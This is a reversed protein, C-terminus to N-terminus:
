EGHKNDASKEGSESSYCGRWDVTKVREGQLFVACRASRVGERLGVWCSYGAHDVRSCRNVDDRIGVSSSKDGRLVADQCGSVGIKADRGGLVGQDDFSGDVM